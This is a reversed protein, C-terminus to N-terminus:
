RDSCHLGNFLAVVQIQGVFRRWAPEQEFSRVFSLLLLALTAIVKM